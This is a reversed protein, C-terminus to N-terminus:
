RKTPPSIASPVNWTPRIVSKLRSTVTATRWTSKRWQLYLLRHSSHLPPPPTATCDRPKFWTWQRLRHNKSLPLRNQLLILLFILSLTMMADFLVIQCNTENWKACADKSKDEQRPPQARNKVLVREKNRKSYHACVCGCAHPHKVSKISFIGGSSEFALCSVTLKQHHWWFYQILFSLLSVRSGNITGINARHLRMRITYVNMWADTAQVHNCHAFLSSYMKKKLANM